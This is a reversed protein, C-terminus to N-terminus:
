FLLCKFSVQAVITAFTQCIFVVNVVLVSGCIVHVKVWPGDVCLYKVFLILM